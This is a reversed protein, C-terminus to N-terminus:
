SMLEVLKEGLKWAKKMSSYVKDGASVVFNLTSNPDIKLGRKVWDKWDTWKYKQNMVEDFTTKGWAYSYGAVNTVATNVKGLSKLMSDVGDLFTVVDIGTYTLKGIFEGVKENGFLERGLYKGNEVLLDKLYNTSGVQDYQGTYLYAANTSANIIDNGASIIGIIGLPIGAVTSCAAVSGVIKVVAVGGKFVCKGYEVIKYFTGQKNYEDVIGDVLKKGANIVKKGGSVVADAVGKCGDVFGAILGKKKPKKRSEEARPFTSSATSLLNAASIKVVNGFQSAAKKAETVKGDKALLTDVSEFTRASTQAAKSGAELMDTIRSFGRGASTIKGAFNHALVGSWNGNAHNLESTVAAFVDNYESRLAEMEASQALLEAPTLQIKGAM